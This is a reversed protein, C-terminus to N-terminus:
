DVVAVEGNELLNLRRWRTDCAKGRVVRVRAEQVLRTGDEKSRFDLIGDSLAEFQQYFSDSHTKTLLANLFAMQPRRAGPVMRMRWYNLIAKEDNYNALASVNDDVHLWGTDEESPMKMTQADAISWDSVKVSEGMVKQAKSLPTEPAGLGTQVTYSDLIHLTKKEELAKVNLAYRALSQRIEDPFHTYTHYETRIERKLASAAITFSTEYWLSQPEFEVLFIRRYDFAGQALEGLIPLELPISM